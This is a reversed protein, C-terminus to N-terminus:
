RFFRVPLVRLFRISKECKEASHIMKRIFCFRFRMVKRIVTCLREFNQKETFKSFSRGDLRAVIYMDPLIVQDLSQEYKRMEKDFDDFRM